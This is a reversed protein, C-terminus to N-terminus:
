KYMQEGLEKIVKFGYPDLLKKATKKRAENLYKEVKEEITKKM